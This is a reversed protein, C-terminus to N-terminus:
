NKNKKTLRLFTSDNEKKLSKIIDIKDLTEKQERATENLIKFRERKSVNNKILISNLSELNSLVALENISAM